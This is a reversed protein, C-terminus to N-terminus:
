DVARNVNLMQVLVQSPSYFCKGHLGLSRLESEWLGHFPWVDTIQIHADTIVACRLLSPSASSFPSGRTLEHSLIRPYGAQSPKVLFSGIKHVLGASMTFVLM